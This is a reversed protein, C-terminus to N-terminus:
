GGEAPPAFLPMWHTPFHVGDGSWYGSEHEVWESIVRNGKTEVAELSRYSDDVWKSAQYFDVLQERQYLLVWTGDKPASDMTQWERTAAVDSM